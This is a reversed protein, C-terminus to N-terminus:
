VADLVPTAPSVLTRYLMPGKPKDICFSVALHPKWPMEVLQLATIWSEWGEKVVVFDIMSGKGQHCTIETNNPTIVEAKIGLEDILSQVKHPPANADMALIFPREGKNTIRAICSIQDEFIGDKAYAAFVMIETDKIHITRGALDKEGAQDDFRAAQDSM